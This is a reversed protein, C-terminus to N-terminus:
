SSASSVPASGSSILLNEPVEFLVWWDLNVIVTRM